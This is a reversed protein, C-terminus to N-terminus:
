ALKPVDPDAPEPEDPDARDVEDLEHERAAIARSTRIRRGTPRRRSRSTRGTRGNSTPTDTSTRRCPAARGDPPLPRRGPPRLDRVGRAPGEHAGQAGRLPAPYRAARPGHRARRAHRRRDHRRGHDARGGGRALAADGRRRRRCRARAGPVGTRQRLVAARGLPLADPRPGPARGPPAAIDHYGKYGRVRGLVADYPRWARRIFALLSLGVAVVIGPCRESCWSRWSRRRARARAGLAARRWLHRMGEIDVLSIAAAIVVAALATTPVPSLLGPVAVLLLVICAAGVLGTVQTKAGAQEAVPTRTASGSSAFGGVFGAAVNM